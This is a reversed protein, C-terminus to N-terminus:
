SRRFSALLDIGYLFSSGREGDDVAVRKAMALGKGEGNDGKGEEGSVCSM